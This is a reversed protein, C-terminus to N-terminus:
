KVLELRQLDAWELAYTTDFFSEALFGFAAAKNRHDKIDNRLAEVQSELSDVERRGDFGYNSSTKNSVGLVQQGAERAYGKIKDISGELSKITEQLAPVEAGKDEARRTHYAARDLCHQKLRGAPVCFILGPVATGSAVARVRDAFSDTTAM